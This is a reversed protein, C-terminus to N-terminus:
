QCSVLPKSFLIGCVISFQKGCKQFILQGKKHFLVQRKCNKRFSDYYCFPDDSVFVFMGLSLSSKSKWITVVSGHYYYHEQKINILFYIFGVITQPLGWTWQLIDYILAM